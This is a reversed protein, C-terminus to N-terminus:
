FGRHYAVLKVISGAITAVAFSLYLAGAIWFYDAELMTLVLVGVAGASAVYYGVLDGHRSITKDREDKRDIDTEPKRGKAVATVSTGISMLIAGVVMLVVSAVIAIILPRQFAIDAAATTQLRGIMTAVYWIPVVITVVLSVWTMKEEFPM